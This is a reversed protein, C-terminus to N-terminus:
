APLGLVVLVFLPESSSLERPRERLAATLPNGGVVVALFQEGDVAFTFPAVSALSGLPFTAVPDLTADDLAHLTGDATTTFVLGGATALAGAHLPADFTRQAVVRASAPDVATLMGLGGVAGTHYAGLWGQPSPRLPPRAGPVCADAGGGYALGTRPSYAPQFGAVGLVNPCDAIGRWDAPARYSQLPGAAYELPRGAADLGATWEIGPVHATAAVFRGDRADLAYFDGDNGFHTVLTGTPGPVLQQVGNESFGNPDGPVYQFHWAIRGTAVDLALASNTYLNTGPRQEPELPPFPTGTGWITLGTAPDFVGPQQFTGGGMRWADGSWTEGGPEDPAPVSWTHWAPTGTRADLADIRGRAGRDAGGGGVIALDGIVLPPAVITYGERPDGVQV